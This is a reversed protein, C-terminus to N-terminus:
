KGKRKTNGRRRVVGTIRKHKPNLFEAFTGRKRKEELAGHSVELMSHEPEVIEPVLNIVKVYSWENGGNKIVFKAWAKIRAKYLLSSKESLQVGWYDGQKVYRIRIWGLDMLRTLVEERANGEQGPREGHKKHVKTIYAKTLGFAEPKRMITLIHREDVQALNGDPDIWYKDAIM